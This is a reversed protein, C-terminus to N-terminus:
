AKNRWYLRNRGSGKDRWSVQEVLGANSIINEIVILNEELNRGEMEILLSDINSLIDKAGELIELERGDVDLKLHNPAPVGKIQFLDDLKIAISRYIHSQV